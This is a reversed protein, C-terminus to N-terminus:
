AYGAEQRPLGLVHMVGFVLVQLRELGPRPCDRLHRDFLVLELLHLLLILGGCLEVLLDLPHAFSMVLNILVALWFLLALAKGLRLIIHM